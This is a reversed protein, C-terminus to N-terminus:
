VCKVCVRCRGLCYAGNDGAPKAMNTRVNAYMIVQETPAGAVCLCVSAM